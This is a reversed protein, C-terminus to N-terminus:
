GHDRSRPLNADCVQNFAAQLRFVVGALMQRIATHRSRDAFDTPVGIPFDFGAFVTEFEGAEAGLNKFLVADGV